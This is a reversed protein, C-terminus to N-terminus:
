LPRQSRRPLRLEGTKAETRLVGPLPTERVAYIGPGSRDIVYWWGLAPHRAVHSTGGPLTLSCRFELTESEGESSYGWRSVVGRALHGIFAGDEDLEVAYPDGAFERGGFASTTGLITLHDASDGRDAQVVFEILHDDDRSTTTGVVADGRKRLASEGSCGLRNDSPLFEGTESDFVSITGESFTRDFGANAIYLYRGDPHAAISVPYHLRDAPPSVGITDVGCGALLSSLCFLLIIRTM